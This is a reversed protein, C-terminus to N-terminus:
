TTGRICLTLLLDSLVVVDRLRIVEVRMGLALAPPSQLRGELFGVALDDLVAVLVVDGVLLDNLPSGLPLRVAGIADVLFEALDGEQLGTRGRLLDARRDLEVLGLPDVALLVGSGTVVNIEADGLEVVIQGVLRAVDL